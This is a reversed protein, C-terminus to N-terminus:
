IPKDESGILMSDCEAMKKNLRKILKFKEASNIIRKFASCKSPRCKQAKDMEPMFNHNFISLLCLNCKGLYNPCKEKMKKKM